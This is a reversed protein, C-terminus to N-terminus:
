DLSTLIRETPKTGMYRCNVNKLNSNKIFEICKKKVNQRAQNENNSFEYFKKMIIKNDKLYVNVQAKYYFKLENKIIQSQNIDLCGSLSIFIIFFFNKKIMFNYFVKKGHM